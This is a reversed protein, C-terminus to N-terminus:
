VVVFVILSVEAFEKLIGSVLAAGLLVWILISNIQKWIKVLLADKKSHPLM